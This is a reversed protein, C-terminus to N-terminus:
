VCMKNYVSMSLHYMVGNEPKMTIMPPMIAFVSVDTCIFHLNVIKVCVFVCMCVSKQQLYFHKFNIFPLFISLEGM